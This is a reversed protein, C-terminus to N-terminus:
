VIQTHQIQYSRIYNPGVGDQGEFHRFFLIAAM